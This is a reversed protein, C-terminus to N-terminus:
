SNKKIEIIVYVSKEHISVISKKNNNKNKLKVVM